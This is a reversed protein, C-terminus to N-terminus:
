SDLSIEELHLEQKEKKATVLVREGYYPQVVDKMLAIPVRLKHETNSEADVLKVTGFKDKKPSNAYKLIGTYTVPTHSEVGNLAAGSEKSEAQMASRKKRLTVPKEKGAQISKFGVLKVAEGDPALQKVLGVFNEYYVEDDIREKLKEPSPGEFIEMCEMMEGIIRGPELVSKQEDPFLSQQLDLSGIQFSIAFSAPAFADVFLAYQEKLEKSVGGNVRYPKKLLREVTRYFMVNVKEVRQVLHEVLTRGRGTADGWITMLWKDNSLSIGSVALHRMFNVDEYLNKLEEKIEPPPFGALGNAILWDATEYDGANYALSAASRFLISRSPEAEKTNPLLLAAQKELKLAEVFLSKAREEEGTHRHWFAMEALDMAQPHLDNM